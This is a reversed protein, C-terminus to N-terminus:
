RQQQRDMFRRARGGAEERSIVEAYPDVEGVSRQRFEGIGMGMGMGMDAGATGAAKSGKGTVGRLSSVIGMPLIGNPAIPGGGQGNAEVKPGRNLALSSWSGSKARSAGIGYQSWESRTTLRSRLLKASQSSPSAYSTQLLRLAGLTATLEPSLSHALFIPM